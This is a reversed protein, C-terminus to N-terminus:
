AQARVKERIDKSWLCWSDPQEPPGRQGRERGMREPMKRSGQLWDESGPSQRAKTWLGTSAM